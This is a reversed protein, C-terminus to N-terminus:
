GVAAGISASSSSRCADPPQPQSDSLALLWALAVPVGLRQAVVAADRLMESIEPLENGAKLDANLLKERADVQEMRMHDQLVLFPQWALAGGQCRALYQRLLEAHQTRIADFRAHPEPESAERQRRLYDKYSRSLEMRLSRNYSAAATRNKFIAQEVTERARADFRELVTAMVHELDPRTTAALYHSLRERSAATAAHLRAELGRPEDIESMQWERAFEEIAERGRSVAAKEREIMDRGVDREARTSEISGCEFPEFGVIAQRVAELAGDFAETVAMLEDSCSNCHSCTYLERLEERTCMHVTNDLFVCPCEHEHGLLTRLLSNASSAMAEQTLGRRSIAGRKTYDWRTFGVVVNRMFALGFVSKLAVLMDKLHMGLRPEQSNLLLLFCNVYQVEARLYAVMAEIFGSDRGESDSFGCLDVGRILDGVGKWPLVVSVPAITDSAFRHSTGFQDTCFCSNLTSGKGVGTAGLVCVTPTANKRRKPMM